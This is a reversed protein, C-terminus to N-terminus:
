NKEGLYSKHITTYIPGDKKLESKVLCISKIELEGIYIDNNKEFFKKIEDKNFVNKVRCLTLHPPKFDGKFKKSIEESIEILKKENKVCLGIVRVYNISPIICFDQIVVQIKEYKKAINDVQKCIDNVSNENREGLFSLTIHLNEKKVLKMKMPLKMLQEQIKVVKKRLENTPWVCIFCRSMYKM